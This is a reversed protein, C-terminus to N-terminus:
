ILELVSDRTAPERALEPHLLELANIWRQWQASALVGSLLPEPLNPKTFDTHSHPRLRETHALRAPQLRAFNIAEYLLLKKRLPQSPYCRGIECKLKREGVRLTLVEEERELAFRNVRKYRRLYTHYLPFEFIPGAFSLSVLVNTADHDVHGQEFACCCVRDPEIERMLTRYRELLGPMEEPLRGDSGRLFILNDQRVGLRFAVSRAEREREPTSHAWCMFVENDLFM